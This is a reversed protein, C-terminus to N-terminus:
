WIRRMQWPRGSAITYRWFTKQNNGRFAYLYDIGAVALKVDGPSGSADLHALAGSEFDARSTQTWSIEASAFGPNAPVVVLGAVLLFGLLRLGWKMGLLRV